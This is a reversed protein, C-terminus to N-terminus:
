GGFRRWTAKKADLNLSQTRMGIFGKVRKGCIEHSVIIDAKPATQGSEGEGLKKWGPLVFGRGGRSRADAQGTRINVEGVCWAPSSRGGGADYGAIGFTWVYGIGNQPFCSVLFWLYM